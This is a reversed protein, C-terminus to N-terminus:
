SKRIACSFATLVIFAYVDIKFFISYKELGRLLGVNEVWENALSRPDMPFVGLAPVVRRAVCPWCTVSMRLKFDALTRRVAM